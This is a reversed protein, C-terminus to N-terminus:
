VHIGDKIRNMRTEEGGEGESDFGRWVEFESAFRVACRLFWENEDGDGGSTEAGIMMAHCAKVFHADSAHEGELAQGRVFEWGRGQLEFDKVYAQDLRPRNQATYALLAMLLWEQLLTAHHEAPFHPLIAGVAHATTLAHVLFFDYGHGGLQPSTSILILSAHHQAQLLQVTPNAITWSNLHSVISNLHRQNNLISTINSDSPHPFKPLTKDNYVRSLIEFLDSTPNSTSPSPTTLLSGLQPDYCTTALSLAEIAVERSNLEFAYGLHILPHGLDATLCYLLPESNINNKPGTELLFETVISQWQDSHDTAQIQDDFFDVWARQYEANTLYDRHNDLTITHPSPTWPELNDRSVADNYITDLQEASAGLLYAAALFHPSHNHFRGNNYLVSYNTHNLRLLHKVRRASNSSLTEIDHVLIPKMHADETDSSRAARSVVSISM